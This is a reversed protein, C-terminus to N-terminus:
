EQKLHEEFFGFIRSYDDYWADPDEFSHRQSPYMMVDFEKRGAQIREDIYQAADQFGVNNDILGHLIRVPQELQDIYTIPSSRAYNVSDDKPKGLRPLTYWPNTHYYNEWNTVARLAAAADFYDPAVSYAYLAMFCGYHGGY